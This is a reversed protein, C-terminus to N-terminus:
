IRKRLCYHSRKSTCWTCVPSHPEVCLLTAVTGNAILAAFTAVVVESFMGHAQAITVSIWPLM